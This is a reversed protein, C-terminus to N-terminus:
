GESWARCTAAALQVCSEVSDWDVRDPTDTPLHYETFRGERVSLMSIAPLGAFVALAPDTWAGIKFRRPRPLSERDAGRDAWANDAERYPVAGPRGEGRLVVPEGAGLTDLGLVLTTAPNLDAGDGDIWARMGGMGSEECGPLLVVVEVGELPERAFREALALVAAVGTANDSAGPVSPSRAVDLALLAAMALVGAGLARPVRRRTLGGLVVLAYALEVDRALFDIADPRPRGLLRAVADATGVGSLEPHRWVIGTQATDHHAVLV